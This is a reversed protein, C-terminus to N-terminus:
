VRLRRRNRAERRLKIRLMSIPQNVAGVHSDILRHVLNREPDQLRQVFVEVLNFLERIVPTQIPEPQIIRNQPLHIVIIRSPQQGRSPKLWQPCQPCPPLSSGASKSTCVSFDVILFWRGVIRSMPLKPCGVGTASSRSELRKIIPIATTTTIPPASAAANRSRCGGFAAFVAEGEMALRFSESKLILAASFKM